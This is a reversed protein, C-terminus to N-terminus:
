LRRILRSIDGAAAAKEHPTKAERARKFAESSDMIFKGPDDGFQSKMWTSLEEILRVLAPLTKILTFLGSFFSM